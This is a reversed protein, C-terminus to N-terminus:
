AICAHVSQVSTVQDRFAHRPTSTPPATRFPRTFRTAASTKLATSGLRAGSKGNSPRPRSRGVHFFNSGVLWYKKYEKCIFLHSSHVNMFGDIKCCVPCLGFYGDMKSKEM